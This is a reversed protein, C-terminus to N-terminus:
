PKTTYELDYTPSGSASKIQFSFVSDVAINIEQLQVIAKWTSGSDLSLRLQLSGSRNLIKIATVEETETYTTATTTATVGYATNIKQGLIEYKRDVGILDSM